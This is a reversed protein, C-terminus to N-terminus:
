LVDTSPPSMKRRRVMALALDLAAIMSSPSAMGRGAIAHATGHDPSTRVFPLGLTVNVGDEFHLIKFPILGQDHYCCVVADYSGSAAARFVADPVLPGELTAAVGRAALEVRALELGPTLVEAEERGFAGGEGAHPNLGSLAVRPADVGLDRRLAEATLVVTRRCLEPSLLGPVRQLAVHTTLLVVRLAGPRTGALMMAHHPNGARAALYETHGPFAFGAAHASHKHITATVLASCRAELVADLAEELAAVQAAGSEGTPYGPRHHGGLGVPAVRSPLPVGCDRAAGALVDPDGFVEAAIEPRAALAKVVVEPGVGTPDGMSIALPKETDRAPCM